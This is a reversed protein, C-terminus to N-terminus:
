GWLMALDWTHVDFPPASVADAESFTAAIVWRTAGSALTELAFVELTRADPDVYWAHRVGWAAYIALKDTRDIRATSPSLVDCVWDPALTIHSREPVEPMRETRWGALDPVLADDDIRIEPEDLIIWGGPGGQGRRFPGILEFGLESSALAHKPAPRPQAHLVGFVIQGVQNPPVSDLDAYTARAVKPATSM